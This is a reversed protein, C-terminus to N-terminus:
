LFYVRPYLLSPQFVTAGHPKGTPEFIEQVTIHKYATM